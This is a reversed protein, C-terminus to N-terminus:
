IISDGGLLFFVFSRPGVRTHETNKLVASNERKRRRRRRRQHRSDFIHTYKESHIPDAHRSYILLYFVWLSAEHTRTRPPTRSHAQWPTHTHTHSHQQQMTNIKEYREAYFAFLSHLSDNKYCRWSEVSVEPTVIRRNTCKVSIAPFIMM